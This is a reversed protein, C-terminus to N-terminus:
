TQDIYVYSPTQYKPHPLQYKSVNYCSSNGFVKYWISEFLFLMRKSAQRSNERNMEM